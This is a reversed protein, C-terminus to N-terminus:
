EKKGCFIMSFRSLHCKGLCFIKRKQHFIVGTLSDYETRSGNLRISIIVTGATVDLSYQRQGGTITNTNILDPQTIEKQYHTSPTSRRLFQIILTNKHTVTQAM